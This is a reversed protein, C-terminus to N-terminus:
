VRESYWSVETTTPVASPVSNRNSVILHQEGLICAYLNRREGDDDPVGVM